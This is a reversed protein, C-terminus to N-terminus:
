YVEERSGTIPIQGLEVLIIKPHEGVLHKLRNNISQM